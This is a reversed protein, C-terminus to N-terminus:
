GRRGQRDTPRGSSRRLADQAAQGAASGRIRDVRSRATDPLRSLAWDAIEQAAGQPPGTRAAEARQEGAKRSAAGVFAQAGAAERRTLAAAADVRRAADATALTRRTDAQLRRLSDESTEVVRQRAQDTLEEWRFPVVQTATLRGHAGQGGTFWLLASVITVATAVEALSEAGPVGALDALVMVLALGPPGVVVGARVAMRVFREFVGGGTAPALPQAPTRRVRVRALAKGPTAGTLWTFLTEYLWIAGVQAFATTVLVPYVQEVVAGAAGALPVAPDWEQLAEVASGFGAAAVAEQVAGAAVPWTVLASLALALAADVVRALLRPGRLPPPAATEVLQRTTDVQIM